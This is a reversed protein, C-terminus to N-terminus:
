LKQRLYGRMPREFCTFSLRAVLLVACVYFIFFGRTLAVSRDFGGFAIRLILVLQIPIHWLYIGYTSYGLWGLREALWHPSWRDVSTLLMVIGTFLILSGAGESVNKVIIISVLIALLSLSVQMVPLDRFQANFSFVTSGVFFYFGCLWVTQLTPSFSLALCIAALPAPGGIGWRFLRSIVMWFLAYVIVEASVSWVPGNFSFSPAHDM